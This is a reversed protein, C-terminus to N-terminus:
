MLAMRGSPQEWDLVSYPLTGTSVWKCPLPSKELPVQGSSKGKAQNFTKWCTSCKLFKRGLGTVEWEKKVSMLGADQASKQGRDKM